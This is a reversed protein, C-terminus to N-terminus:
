FYPRKKLPDVTTADCLFGVGAIKVHNSKNIEPIELPFFINLFLVEVSGRGQVTIKDDRIRLTM